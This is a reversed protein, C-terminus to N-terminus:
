ALSRELKELREHTEIRDAVALWHSLVTSVDQLNNTEPLGYALGSSFMLDGSVNGWLEPHRNAWSKLYGRYEYGLRQAIAHTGPEYDLVEADGYENEIMWSAWHGQNANLFADPEQSLRYWGAFCAVTGCDNRKGVGMKYMALKGGGVREVTKEIDAVIGRIEESSPHKM